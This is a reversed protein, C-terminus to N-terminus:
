PLCIAFESSAPTVMSAGLRIIKPDPKQGELLLEFNLCRAGTVQFDFGDMEGSTALYSEIKRSTSRLTDKGETRTAKVDSISGETITIRIKFTKIVKHGQTTTRVHWGKADQYIWYADPHGRVLDKPPGVVFGAVGKPQVPTSPTPKPDPKPEPKPEAPKPTVPKPEVPKPTVPKPEPKPIPKVDVPKPEPKPEPKTTIPKPKAPTVDPKPEPKPDPTTADQDPKSPRRPQAPKHPRPKPDPNSAHQHEPSHAHRGGHSHITCGSAFVLTLTLVGSYRMM